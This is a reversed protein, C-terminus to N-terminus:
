PGAEGVKCGSAPHAQGGAEMLPAFWAACMM